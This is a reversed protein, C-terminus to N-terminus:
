LGSRPIITQTPGVTILRIGAFTPIGLLHTLPTTLTNM